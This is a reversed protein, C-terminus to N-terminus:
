IDVGSMLQTETAIIENGTSKKIISGEKLQAM